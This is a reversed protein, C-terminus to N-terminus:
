NEAPEDPDVLEAPTDPVTTLWTTLRRSLVEPMRSFVAVAQGTRADRLVVMATGVRRGYSGGAIRVDGGAPLPTENEVRHQEDPGLVLPPQVGFVIDIDAPEFVEPGVVLREPTLVIRNLRYVEWLGNALLMGVAALLVLGGRWPYRTVITVGLLGVSGAALAISLWRLGTMERHLIETTAM